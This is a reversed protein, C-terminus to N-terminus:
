CSRPSSACRPGARATAAARPSSCVCCFSSCCVLSSSACSPAAARRASRRPRACSGPSRAPGGRAHLLLGGLEREGRAVLGLEERVHRVLQARREVADQDEALLEGVVGVAVERARCTSNAFVIWPAPVSRSFRILSMRSREFISDPVTVTSHSSSGNACRRSVTSRLKRWSASAACARRERGLEGRAEPARDRGIRLAQQLHQLVQQRVRELEGLVAAHPQLDAHRVAAPAGVVRHEALAAVTTANVTLSVPM